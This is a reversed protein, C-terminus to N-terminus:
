GGIRMSKVKGKENLYNRLQGTNVVVEIGMKIRGDEMKLRKNPDIRGRNSSSAYQQWKREVYFSKIFDTNKEAESTNMLPACSGTGRSVLAAYVAAKIADEEAEQNDNGIGWSLYKYSNGSIGEICEVEYSTPMPDKPASACSALIIVLVLYLCHRYILKM